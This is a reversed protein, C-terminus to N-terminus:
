DNLKEAVVGHLDSGKPSVNEFDFRWLDKIPKDLTQGGLMYVSSENAAM